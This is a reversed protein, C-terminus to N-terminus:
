KQPEGVYLELDSSNYILNYGTKNLTEEIQSIFEPAVEIFDYYGRAQRSISVYHPLGNSAEQESIALDDPTNLRLLHYRGVYEMDGTGYVETVYGQKTKQQFFDVGAAQAPSYYDLDQNGYYSIIHLPVAIILVFCLILIIARKRIDLLSAGFYAMPALSLLYLRQILEGSYTLVKLPVLLLPGVAIALILISVKFDRRILCVWVAGLLGILAFIGSFLMRIKAVAIHSETGTLRSTIQAETIAEPGLILASVGSPAPSVGSPAVSTEINTVVPKVYGGAGTLNWGVLLVLCLAVVPAVRKGRKVICVAILICLAVIATLLHTIVLIAFALVVMSLFAFSKSGKQWLWPHTVLALLTLLLLLAVGQTSSFYEQAIWQALCFLWCGALCYNLRKKGLTNRLFVYLPILFLLQMFFPFINFLPELNKISGLIIIPSSILFVGPWSFYVDKAPDFHGQGIIYNIYALNRYSHNIYPPSGGTILPILWLASVMLLLQLFLLKGHNERSVWLIASAITLFALAVFFTIPLGNILGWFGIDLRAYLISHTWLAVAVVTLLISIQQRSLKASLVKVVMGM